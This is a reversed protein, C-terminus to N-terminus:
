GSLIQFFFSRQFSLSPPPLPTTLGEKNGFFVNRYLSHKNEINRLILVNWFLTAEFGILILFCGIKLKLNFSDSSFLLVSAMESRANYQSEGVEQMRDIPGRGLGRDKASTSLFCFNWQFSRILSPGDNKQLPLHHTLLKRPGSPQPHIKKRAIGPALIEKFRFM